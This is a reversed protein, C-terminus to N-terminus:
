VSIPRSGNRASEIVALVLKLGLQGQEIPVLNARAAIDGRLAAVFEVAQRLYPDGDHKTSEVAPKERRGWWTESPQGDHTTLTLDNPSAFEAFAKECVVKFPTQWQMPVACNSSVISAIAGSEFQIQGSANDEIAYGPVARHTLNAACGTVSVPEGLLHIAMDYLHIAQEVVQGGGLSSTRWWDPHLANCLYSAQFLLGRGAQGSDIMGRLRRVPECFRMHYGVHTIVGAARAADVQRTASELTLAIPKELFLHCGREAAMEVEGAHAGPPISVVVADPRTEQLMRAFGDFARCGSKVADLCRQASAPSRGCIGVVQVGPQAALNTAHKRTMGGTGLFAFRLPSM